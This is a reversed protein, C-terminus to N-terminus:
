RPRRCDRRLDHAIENGPAAHDPAPKFPLSEVKAKM